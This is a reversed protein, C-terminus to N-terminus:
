SGSFIAASVSWFPSTARPISGDHYFLANEALVERTFPQFTEGGRRLMAHLREIWKRAPAPLSDRYEFAPLLEAPACENELSIQLRYFDRRAARRSAEIFNV